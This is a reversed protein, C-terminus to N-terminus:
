PKRMKDIAIKGRCAPCITYKDAIHLIGKDDCEPCNEQAPQAEVRLISPSIREQLEAVARELRWLRMEVSDYEYALGPDPAPQGPFVVLPFSPILMRTPCAFNTCGVTGMEANCTSCRAM